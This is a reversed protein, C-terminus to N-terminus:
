TATETSRSVTADVNVITKDPFLQVPPRKSTVTVQQLVSINVSDARERNAATDKHQAQMINCLILGVPIFLVKRM